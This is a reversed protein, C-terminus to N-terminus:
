KQRKLIEADTFTWSVRLRLTASCSLEIVYIHKKKIGTAIHQKAPDVCWIYFLVICVCNVLAMASKVYQLNLPTSSYRINLDLVLLILSATVWGSM